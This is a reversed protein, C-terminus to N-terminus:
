AGSRRPRGRREASPRGDRPSRCLGRSRLEHLNRGPASQADPAAPILRHDGRRDHPVRRHERLASPLAASPRFRLANEGRNDFLAIEVAGWSGLTRSYGAEIQDLTEARLDRWQGTRGYFSDYFVATWVGPLNFAHAYRAYAQGWNGRVVLGAQGGWDGGFDRSRNYRLGASPVVQVRSGFTWSGAAYPATNRFRYDGQPVEGAPREERASGGYLDHDLGFM